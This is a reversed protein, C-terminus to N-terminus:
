SSFDSNFSLECVTYLLRQPPDLPWIPRMREVALYLKIYRVTNMWEKCGPRKTIRSPVIWNMMVAIFFCFLYNIRDKLSTSETSSSKSYCIMAATSTFYMVVKWFQLVLEMLFVMLTMRHMERIGVSFDCRINKGLTLIHDFPDIKFTYAGISVTKPSVPYNPSIALVSRM